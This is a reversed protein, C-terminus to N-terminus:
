IVEFIMISATHFDKQFCDINASIGRIFERM